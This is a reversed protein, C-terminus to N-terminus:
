SKPERQFLFIFVSALVIWIGAVNSVWEPFEAYILFRDFLFAIIVGIAAFLFVNPIEENQNRFVILGLFAASIVFSFYCLLFLFILFVINLM